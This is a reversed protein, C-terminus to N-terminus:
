WNRDGYKEAGYAFAKGAAALLSAPILDLRAKNTDNKKPEIM